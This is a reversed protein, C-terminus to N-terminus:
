TNPNNLEALISAWIQDRDYYYPVWEQNNLLTKLRNARDKNIELGLELLWCLHVIPSPQIEQQRSNLFQQQRSYREQEATSTPIYRCGINETTNKVLVQYTNLRTQHQRAQVFERHYQQIKPTSSASTLWWSNHQNFSYIPDSNACDQWWADEILKDFRDAQPWQFIVTSNKMDPVLEVFKHALWEPGAGVAATNVVTHDPLLAQLIQPWEPWIHGAAYGDGFTYIKM